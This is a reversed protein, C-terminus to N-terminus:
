GKIHSMVEILTFINITWKIGFPEGKPTPPFVGMSVGMSVSFIYADNFSKLVVVGGNEFGGWNCGFFRRKRGFASFTEIAEKIEELKLNLYM